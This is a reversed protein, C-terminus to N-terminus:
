ALTNEQNLCQKTREDPMLFRRMKGIKIDEIVGKDALRYITQPHCNLKEALEAAKYLKEAM